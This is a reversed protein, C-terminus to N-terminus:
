SRPAAPTIVVDVRLGVVLPQSPELDIWVERTKTDYREAPDDTYLQKRTMRPSSHAVHGRLECEPMGDAYITAEMGPRVRPADMEEVFARVRYRSTDVLIVAADPSEPSALEGSEVDVRLIQADCPARLNTRELQVNALELRARAAEVQARDMLIEDPRAPADLLQVHARAAALESRLAAVRTRSDDAEQQSVTQKRSLQEIRKWSLEAAELEARRADALSRAEDREEQRAGNIRRELRAEALRVEAAALAVAHRYEADDLAVLVDDKKVTQGEKVLVGAVRGLLRPRLEIEETRGEIRGPACISLGRATNLNRETPIRSQSDIAWGLVVVLLIAVLLITYRTM